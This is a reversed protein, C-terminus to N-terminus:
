NMRSDDDEVGRKHTQRGFSMGEDRGFPALKEINPVDRYQLLPQIKDAPYDKRLPYGEFEPYLLIRRLDPHGLFKVGFMDFCEREMWNASGWLDTVTDLEVTEGERDGIRAKLRLRHGRNLSYLHAVIEFRPERDPYDVATLDTLMNMDSQANDKLFRCVEKWSAPTLVLTDDGLQSHSELVADPFNQKVLEILAKSM